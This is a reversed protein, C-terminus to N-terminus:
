EFRSASQMFAPAIQTFRDPPCILRVVPRVRCGAARASRAPPSRVHPVVHVHLPSPSYFPASNSHAVLELGVAPSKSEGGVFHVIVPEDRAQMCVFARIHTCRRARICM